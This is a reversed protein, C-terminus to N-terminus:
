YIKRVRTKPWQLVVKANSKKLCKPIKTINNKVASLIKLKPLKCISDPLKSLNNNNIYLTELGQLEVIVEPFIKFNNGKSFDKYIYGLNLVKLQHLSSIEKPLFELNSNNIGLWALNKFRKISPSLTDLQEIYLHTINNPYAMKEFLENLDFANGNTIELYNLSPLENLLNILSDMTVDTTAVLYHIKDKSTNFERGTFFTQINKPKVLNLIPVGIYVYPKSKFLTCYAFIFTIFFLWSCILFFRFFINSTKM